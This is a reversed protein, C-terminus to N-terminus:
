LLQFVLREPSRRSVPCPAENCVPPHHESPYEVLFQLGLSEAGSFFTQNAQGFGFDAASAGLIQHHGLTQCGGVVWMPHGSVIWCEFHDFLSWERHCRHKSDSPKASPAPVKKLSQGSNNQLFLAKVMGHFPHLKLRNELYSLFMLCNPDGFLLQLIFCFDRSWKTAYM